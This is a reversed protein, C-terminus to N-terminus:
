FATGKTIDINKRVRFIMSEWTVATDIVLLHLICATIRIGISPLVDHKKCGYSKQHLRALPKRINISDFFTIQNMVLGKGLLLLRTWIESFYWRMAMRAALRYWIIHHIFAYSLREAFDLLAISRITSAPWPDQSALGAGLACRYGWEATPTTRRGAWRQREVCELYIRERPNPCFAWANFFVFAHWHLERMGIFLVCNSM